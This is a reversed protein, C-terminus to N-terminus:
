HSKTSKIYTKIEHICKIMSEFLVLKKVLKLWFLRICKNHIVKAAPSDLRISTNLQIVCFRVNFILNLVLALRVITVIILVCIVPRARMDHNNKFVNSHKMQCINM